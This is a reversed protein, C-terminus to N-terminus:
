YNNAIREFNVKNKSIYHEKIEKESLGSLKAIGMYAQFANVLNVENFTNNLKSILEFVYLLQKSPDKDIVNSNIIPDIDLYNALSIFFHIGDVFEELVKSKDISKDKKWYKFPKIENAFEGVEVLLALIKKDLTDKFSVKHAKHIERDLAKQMKFIEKFNM